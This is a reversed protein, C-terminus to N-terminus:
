RNQSRWTRIKPGSSSRTRKYLKLTEQLFKVRWKPPYRLQRLRPQGRLRPPRLELVHLLVDQFRLHPHLELPQM